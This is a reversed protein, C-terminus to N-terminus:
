IYIKVISIIEEPTLKSPVNWPSGGITARGGWPAGEANSLAKFVSETFDIGKNMPHLPVLGLTYSYGKFEGNNYIDRKFLCVNSEFSVGSQPLARYWARPDVYGSMGRSDFIVVGHYESIRNEALIQQTFAEVKTWYPKAIDRFNWYMEDDPENEIAMGLWSIGEEFAKSSFMEKQEVSWQRRDSPLELEEVLNNSMEKLAAVVMAADDSYKSYLHPVILHDCDYSIASLFDLQDSSFLKKSKSYHYSTWMTFLYFASVIADADLMTTIFAPNIDKKLFPCQDFDTPLEQLQIDAGGTRHHDYLEDYLKEANPVTGDIGIIYYGESKLSELVEKRTTVVFQISM